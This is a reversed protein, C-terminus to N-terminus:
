AAEGVFSYPPWPGTLTVEDCDPLPKAVRKVAARFASVKGAPVLFAADLVLRGATPDGVEPMRRTADSALGSLQEFVGEARARAEAAAVAGADRLAQKRMLFGTGGSGGRAQTGRTAERDAAKAAAAEDFLIRVGLEQHGSVREALRRLRARQARFHAVAREDSRFLVFLKLPIVAKARAFRGIVSQHGVACASVWDLDKLGRDIAEKGYKEQPADSVVLWLQEGGPLVRPAGAGPLGRPPRGLAPPRPNWVLCYVYTLPTSTSM